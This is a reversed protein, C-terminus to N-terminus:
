RSYIICPLLFLTRGGRKDVFVYHFTDNDLKRLLIFDSIFFWALCPNRKHTWSPLLYCVVHGKVFGFVSYKLEDSILEEIRLSVVEDTSFLRCVGIRLLEIVFLWFDLYATFIWGIVRAKFFVSLMNMYIDVSRFTFGFTSCKQFTALSSALNAAIM